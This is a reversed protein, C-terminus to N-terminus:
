VVGKGALAAADRRGVVRMAAAVLEGPDANDAIYESRHAYVVVGDGDVVVAGGQQAHDGDGRHQRYGDGLARLQSYIARGGLTGLWARRLGAAAYSTREPDSVITVGKDALGHRLVFDGIHQPEGNGVMLVRAGLATLEHLRPSITAVHKSCGVCGFHRLFVIVTPQGLALERLPRRSGSADTVIADLLADPLREGMRLGDM